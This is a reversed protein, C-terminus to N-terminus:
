RAWEMRIDNPLCSLIVPTLLVGYKNGKIGLSELSRVHMLLEDQIARLAHICSGNDRSM